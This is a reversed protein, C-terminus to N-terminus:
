TSKEDNRTVASTKETQSIPVTELKTIMRQLDTNEKKIKIREEETKRLQTKMDLMKKEGEERRRREEIEANEKKIKIREEETKRLQTKMDLMKKEGEERRRREEIEKELKDKETKLQIEKKRIEDISKGEKIYRINVGTDLTIRKQLPLLTHFKDFVLDTRFGTVASCYIIQDASDIYNKFDNIAKEILKVLLKEGEPTPCEFEDDWARKKQDDRLNDIKNLVLVIKKNLEKGVEKKILELTEAIDGETGRFLHCRFGM